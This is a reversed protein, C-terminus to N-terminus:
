QHCLLGPSGAGPDAMALLHGCHELHGLASDSSTLVVISPPPIPFRLHSPIVSSPLSSSLHFPQL